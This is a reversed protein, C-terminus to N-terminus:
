LCLSYAEPHFLYCKRSSSNHLFIKVCVRGEGVGIFTYTCVHIQAQVFMLSLNFGHYPVSNSAKGYVSDNLKFCFVSKMHCFEYDM